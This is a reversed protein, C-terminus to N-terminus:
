LLTERLIRLHRTTAKGSMQNQGSEATRCRPAISYGGGVENRGITHTVLMCVIRHNFVQEAFNQSDNQPNSQDVFPTRHRGRGIQHEPQHCCYDLQEHHAEGYGLSLKLLKWEEIQIQHSGDRCVDSTVDNEM